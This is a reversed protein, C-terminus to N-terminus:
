KSMGRKLRAASMAECPDPREFRPTFWVMDFAGEALEPYDAARDHGAEVEVLGVSVVQASPLLRELYIPVAIDRRAHGRGLVAVVGRGAQAAISTAMAADRGRQAQVIIRLVEPSIDNCHGETILRALIAERQPNWVAAVLAGDVDAPLAAFGDRGVRRADGRSLNIGVVPFGRTVAEDVLPRYMAWGWGERSLQGADALAEATSDARGQVADLAAQHERDFQEMALTTSRRGAVTQLVSLQLRHHAPNDHTEGLLVVGAAVIRDVAEGHALQTRGSGDVIRGVLPHDHLSLGATAACGALPACALGGLARLLRRRSPDHPASDSM